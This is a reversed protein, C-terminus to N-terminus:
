TEQLLDPLMAVLPKSAPPMLYEDLRSTHLWDLVVPAIISETV